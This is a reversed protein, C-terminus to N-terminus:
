VGMTVTIAADTGSIATIKSWVWKWPADTAFGDTDSTTGSLTITGLLLGNVGALAASPEENSGYIEVTGTVAGTGVVSAQFSRQDRIPSFAKGTGTGTGTQIVQSNRSM